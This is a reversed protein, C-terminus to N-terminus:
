AARSYRKRLRACPLEVGRHIAYALAVSIAFALAAKPAKALDLPTMAEFINLHILYLSYSLVGLFRTARWNLWRFPLRDHYRIAATFLPILAAGQLTYRFTEHFEPDRVAWSAYIAIIAVPILALDVRRRVVGAHDMMPNAAVALLCGFLISDARTDTGMYTRWEPVGLGYVLWCRWALILGCGSALVIAQTRRGTWRRLALYALPFLLYFHEEVALSWTVGMGIGTGDDGAFIRYYNSVQFVQAVIAGWRMDWPRAVATVLTSVALVLYFPPLIRLIRRAYFSKLDIRGKREGERRMLTTILYGSLFFFATVGFAAPVRHWGAHALFVILFAAARIGDLSPIYFHTAEPYIGAEAESARAPALGAAQTGGEVRRGGGVTAVEPTAIFALDPANISGLLKKTPLLVDFM